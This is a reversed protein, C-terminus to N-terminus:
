MKPLDNFRPIPKGEIAALLKQPYHDYAAVPPIFLSGIFGWTVFPKQLISWFDNYEKQQDTARFGLWWPPIFHVTDAGFWESYFNGKMRKNFSAVFADNGVNPCAAAYGTLDIGGEENIKLGMETALMYHIDITCVTTVAAGLSHGTIYIYKIGDEICKKIFDRIMDRVLGYHQVFGQHMRIKTDERGYPVVLDAGDDITKKIMKIDFNDRWDDKEDSGRFIVCAVKGLEEDKYIGTAGQAENVSFTNFSEFMEMPISTEPRALKPYVTICMKVLIAKRKNSLNKM